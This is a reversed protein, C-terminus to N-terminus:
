FMKYYQSVLRDQGQGKETKTQKLARDLEELTLATELTKIYYKKLKPINAKELFTLIDERCKQSTSPGLPDNSFNNLSRYCESICKWNSMSM